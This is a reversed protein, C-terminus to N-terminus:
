QLISRRREFLEQFIAFITQRNASPAKAGPHIMRGRDFQFLWRIGPHRFLRSPVRRYNFHIELTRVTLRHRSVWSRNPHPSTKLLPHRLRKTALINCDRAKSGKRLQWILSIGGSEVM